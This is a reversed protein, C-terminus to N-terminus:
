DEGRVVVVPCVAHQVCYQSVSGLLSGTFGGLGRSGVVLLDASASQDILVKAPPGSVIRREVQVGAVAAEAREVATDLVAQEAEAFADSPLLPVAAAHFPPVQWARMATVTAGTAAAYRMAWQLAQQSSESGDVGVVV